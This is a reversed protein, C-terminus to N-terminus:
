DARFIGLGARLRLRLLYLWTLLHDNQRRHGLGYEEMFVHPRRCASSVVSFNDTGIDIPLLYRMFQGGSCFYRWSLM